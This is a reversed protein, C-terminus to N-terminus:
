AEDTGQSRRRASLLWRILEHAVCALVATWLASRDIVRYDAVPLKATEFGIVIGVFWGFAGLLLNLVFSLPTPRNVASALATVVVGIIAGSLAPILLLLITGSV